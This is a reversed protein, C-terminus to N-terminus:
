KQYLSKPCPNILEHVCIVDVMPLLLAFPLCMADLPNIEASVKEPVGYSRHERHINSPEDRLSMVTLPIRASM